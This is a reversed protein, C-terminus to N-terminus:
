GALREPDEARLHALVREVVLAVGDEDNTAALEWGEMAAISLLEASANAMLVPQGAWRLMELDNWNDGIAMVQSRALGRRAALRSLAVGKSCGRPLIDLISLDRLGYETRHMEILNAFPSATLHEEARSMEAVTGCVMGQVPAEGADFANELPDIEEIWPLNADVWLAVREHLRQLSELVLEGKGVRDFTYVTTGGFPRLVKCLARATELPLFARDFTHGAFDRTVTGNSSILITEPALGVPALLPAAYAQRRGTAIVVEIGAAAAARLAAITRGSMVTGASPMLTGDIDFAIMRPVPQVPEMGREISAPAQGAGEGAGEGDTEPSGAEASERVDVM